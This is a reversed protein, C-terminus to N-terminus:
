SGLLIKPLLYGEIFLLCKKQKWFLFFFLMINDPRLTGKISNKHDDPNQLSAVASKEM